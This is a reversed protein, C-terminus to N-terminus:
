RKIVVKAEQGPKLPVDASIRVKIKFSDKNKNAATQMDKPTYESKVDIYAVKGEYDGKATRITVKQGYQVLDIDAEPLYAMVYTEKSSAVDAMNYGAAVMDGVIYNKSMLTGDCNALITFKALDEKQQAIQIEAQEVQAKASIITERDAGDTTLTLQQKATDLAAKAVDYQYKANDYSTKSVAGQQYLEESANYDTLAKDYAAQATSIGNKVQKIAAADAGKELLALASQKQILTQELQEIAYEQDTSDIKFLLDGKRVTEGLEVPAKTILGAVQSTHSYMTTEAIGKLVLDGSVQSSFFWIGLAALLVVLIAIRVKLPPGSRKIENEGDKKETIKKRIDM